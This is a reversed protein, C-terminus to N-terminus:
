IGRQAERFLHAYSVYLHAHIQMRAYDCKPPANLTERSRYHQEKFETDWRSV